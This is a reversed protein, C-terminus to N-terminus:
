CPVAFISCVLNFSLNPRFNYYTLCFYSRLFSINNTVDTLSPRPLFCPVSLCPSQSCILTVPKECLHPFPQSVLWPCHLDLCAAARSPAMEWGSDPALSSYSRSVVLCTGGGKISAHLGNVVPRAPLSCFLWHRSRVRSRDAWSQWHNWQQGMYLGSLLFGASAFSLLTSFPPSRPLTSISFKDSAVIFIIILVPATSPTVFQLNLHTNTTIYINGGKQLDLQCDSIHM